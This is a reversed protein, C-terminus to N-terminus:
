KQTPALDLMNAIGEAATWDGHGLAQIRFWAVAQQLLPELTNSAIANKLDDHGLWVGVEDIKTNPSGLVLVFRLPVPGWRQEASERLSKSIQWVDQLHENWTSDLTWLTQTLDGRCGLPDASLQGSPTSWVGGGSHETSGVLRLVLPQQAPLSWTGDANLQGGVVEVHPQDLGRLNGGQSVKVNLQEAGSRWGTCVPSQDLPLPVAQHPAGSAGDWWGDQNTDWSESSTAQWTEVLHVAGDLDEDSLARRQAASGDHLVGLLQDGHPAESLLSQFAEWELTPDALLAEEGLTFAAARILRASGLYADTRAHALMAPGHDSRDSWTLLDPLANLTRSDDWQLPALGPKKRVMCDALLETRGERLTPPGGHIWAHAIEHILVADVRETEPDLTITHLGHEDREARGLYGEPLGSREITVQEHAPADRGTCARAAEWAEVAREADGEHAASFVPMAASPTIALSLATLIM